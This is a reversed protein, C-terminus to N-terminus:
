STYLSTNRSFYRYIMLVVIIAVQATLAMVPITIYGFEYVYRAACSVAGIGGTVCSLSSEGGNEVYVHYISVLMGLFALLISLNILIKKPRFLALSMLVLQPYIFFRQVWCLECATFGIVESYFLSLAVSGLAISFAFLVGYKKCLLLIPNTRSRFFIYAIACVIIIFQLGITALALIYNFTEVYPAM